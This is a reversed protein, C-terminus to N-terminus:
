TYSRCVVHSTTKGYVNFHNGQRHSCIFASYLQHQEAIPNLGISVNGHHGWNFDWVYVNKAKNDATFGVLSGIRSLESFSPNTFLLFSKGNASVSIPKSTM